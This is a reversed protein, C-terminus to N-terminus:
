PTGTPKHHQGSFTQNPTLIAQQADGLLKAEFFELFWRHGLLPNGIPFNTFAVTTDWECWEGNGDEVHLRVRAPRYRIALTTDTLAEEEAISSLDIGLLDAEQEPFVTVDSGSSLIGPLPDSWGESGMIQVPIFPRHQTTSVQVYHFLV